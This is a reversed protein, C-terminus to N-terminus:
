WRYRAILGAGWNPPKLGDHHLRGVVIGPSVGLKLAFQRVDNLSTIRALRGSEAAPILLESAFADAEEEARGSSDKTDIFTPPIDRPGSRKGHLLLHAGEHFFTFWLIDDRLHRASLEILAKTPTLWRAIGNVRAGPVEKEIIVVVGASRCIEQLQPLWVNPDQVRTLGRAEHLVLEFSERSFTATAVTEAKIEGIRMWAGLAVPDGATKALRYAALPASESWVTNWADVSAVGFFNLLERLQGVGSAVQDICGRAVLDKVLPKSAWGAHEALTRAEDLRSLHGQYNTELASWVRAPVGLVRELKLATDPSISASGKVVLNIHKASLGTRRALEAQSMGRDDLLEALSVGPPVAYDPEYRVPKSMTAIM